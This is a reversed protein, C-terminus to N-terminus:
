DPCRGYNGQMYDFIGAVIFKCRVRNGMVLNWVLKAGYHVIFSPIFTIFHYWSGNKKMFLLSNRAFYYYISDKTTSAGAKHLIASECDVVSVYGQERARFSWDAEELYLFYDNDLLGVEEIVKTKILLACGSVYDVTKVGQCSTRLHGNEANAFQGMYLNIKGGASWIKTPDDYYLIKPGSMGIRPDREAVDVLATILGPEVVTDNNLILVYDSRKKLAYRIGVNNGGAFGLNNENKIITIQPYRSSLFAVSDDTSGNDVLIIEYTPYVVAELSELCRVTDSLGNWNLVVVAVSATSM